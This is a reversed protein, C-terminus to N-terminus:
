GHTTSTDAQILTMFLGLDRRSLEVLTGEGIGSTICLIGLSISLSSSRRM